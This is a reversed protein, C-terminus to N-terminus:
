DCTLGKPKTISVPQDLERCKMLNVNLAYFYTTFHLYCSTVM